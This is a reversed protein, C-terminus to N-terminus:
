QHHRDDSGERGAGQRRRDRGRDAPAIAAKPPIAQFTRATGEAGAAHRRGPDSNGVRALRGGQERRPPRPDARRRVAVTLPIEHTPRRFDTSNLAMSWPPTQGRPQNLRRAALRAARPAHHRHLRREEQRIEGQPEGAGPRRPLDHRLRRAQRRRRGQLRGAPVRGGLGTRSMSRRRGNRSTKRSRARRGPTSCPTSPTKPRPRTPPNLPRRRGRLRVLHDVLRCAVLAAARVIGRM